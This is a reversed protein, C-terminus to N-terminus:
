GSFELLTVVLHVLILVLLRGSVHLQKVGNAGAILRIAQTAQLNDLDVM